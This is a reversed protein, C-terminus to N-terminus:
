EEPDEKAYYGVDTGPYGHPYQPLIALKRSGHQTHDGHYEVEEVNDVCQYPSVVVL